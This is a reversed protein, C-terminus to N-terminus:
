PTWDKPRVLSPCDEAWAEENCYLWRFGSWRHLPEIVLSPSEASHRHAKPGHAALVDLPTIPAGRRWVSVAGLMLELEDGDVRRVWGVRVLGRGYWGLYKIMLLGPRMQEETISNTSEDDAAYADDDAADAASVNANTDADAAADDAAAANSAAANASDAADADADADDGAANTDADSDDDATVNAAARAGAAANAASDDADASLPMWNPTGGAFLALRRCSLRLGHEEYWDGLVARARPNSRLNLLDQPPTM